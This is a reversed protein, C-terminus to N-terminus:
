GSGFFVLITGEQPELDFSLALPINIVSYVILLGIFGDWRQKYKGNPHIFGLQHLFAKSVNAEIMTSPLHEVVSFRRKLRNITNLHAPVQDQDKEDGEDEDEDSGYDCYEGEQNTPLQSKYKANFICHVLDVDTDAKEKIESESAYIHKSSKM